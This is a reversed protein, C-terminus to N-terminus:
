CFCAPVNQDICIRLVRILDVGHQIDDQDPGSVQARWQSVIEVLRPLMQACEAVPLEDGGDDPRNLLPLLSTQVSDWSRDGGFGVLTGLDFGEAAALHKRFRHFGSYSWQADPTAVDGNGPFIVLGM